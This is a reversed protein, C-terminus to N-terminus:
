RAVTFLLQNGALAKRAKYTEMVKSLAAASPGAITKMVKVEVYDTFPAIVVDGDEAWPKLDYALRADLTADLGLAEAAPPQSAPTAPADKKPVDSVKAEDTVDKAGVPVAKGGKKAWEKYGEQIATEPIFHRMANRESKSGALTYAFPNESGDKYFKQQQTHGNRKMGTKLEQCTADAFYSKGDASERIETHIISLLRGESVLQEAMWKVGSFSLGVKEVGKDKFRYFFQEIIHGKIDDVIQKEDLRDMEEFPAAREAEEKREALASSTSM